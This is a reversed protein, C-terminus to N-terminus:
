IRLQVLLVFIKSTEALIDDLLEFELNPLTKKKKLTIMITLFLVETESENLDFLSLHLACLRNNVRQLKWLNFLFQFCSFFYFQSYRM